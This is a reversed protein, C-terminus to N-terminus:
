RRAVRSQTDLAKESDYDIDNILNHYLMQVRDDRTNSAQVFL